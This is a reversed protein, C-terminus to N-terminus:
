VAIMGPQIEPKAIAMIMEVFAIIGPILTWCFILYVVGTGVKGAYFKHGGIGGLFFALLVYVWKNVLKQGNFVYTTTNTNFQTNANQIAKNIIYEGGSDFVEVVDNIEPVFNVSDRNVTITNGNDLAIVVTDESVKIIKSM